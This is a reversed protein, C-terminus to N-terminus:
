GPANAFVPQRRRKRLPVLRAPVAASAFKGLIEPTRNRMCPVAPWAEESFSMVVMRQAVVTRPADYLSAFCRLLVANSRDGSLLM